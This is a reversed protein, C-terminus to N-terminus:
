APLAWSSPLFRLGGAPHTLTTGHADLVFGDPIDASASVNASAPAQAMSPNAMLLGLIGIASVRLLFTM